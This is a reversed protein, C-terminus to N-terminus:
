HSGRAASGRPRGILDAALLTTLVVAPFVWAPGPSSGPGRVTSTDPPRAGCVILIISDAEHAEAFRGDGDADAWVFEGKKPSEFITLGYPGELFEPDDERHGGAAAIVALRYDQMLIAGYVDLAGDAAAGRDDITRCSSGWYSPVTAAETAPAHRAVEAPTVGGDPWYGHDAAVAQASLLLLIPVLIASVPLRSRTPRRSM